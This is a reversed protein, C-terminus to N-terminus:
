SHRPHASEKIRALLQHQAANGHARLRFCVLSLAPPVALELLQQPDAQLRAEFLRRLEM